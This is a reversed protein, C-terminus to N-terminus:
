NTLTVDSIGIERLVTDWPQQLQSSLRPLCISFTTYWWDFLLLVCIMLFPKLWFYFTDYKSRTQFRWRNSQRIMRGQRMRWVPASSHSLWIWGFYPVFLANLTSSLVDDMASCMLRGCWGEFCIPRQLLLSTCMMKSLYRSEHIFGPLVHVGLNRSHKTWPGFGRPWRSGLCFPSLFM